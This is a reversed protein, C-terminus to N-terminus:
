GLSSEVVVVSFDGGMGVMGWTLASGTGISSVGWVREGVGVGGVGVGVVGGGGGGAARAGMPEGVVVEVVLGGTLEGVGVRVLSSSCVVSASGSFSKPSNSATSKFPVPVPDAKEEAAPPGADEPLGM